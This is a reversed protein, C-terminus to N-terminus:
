AYYEEKVNADCWAAIGQMLAIKEPSVVAGISEMDRMDSIMSKLVEKKKQWEMRAALKEQEVIDVVPEEIPAITPTPVVYEGTVIAAVALVRAELERKKSAIREDLQSQETFYIVDRIVEIFPRTHEVLEYVPPIFPTTETAFVAESVIVQETYTEVEGTDRTFLVTAVPQGNTNEVKEITITYM